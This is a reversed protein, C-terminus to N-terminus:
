EVLTRVVKAYVYNRSLTQQWNKRVDRDELCDAMYNECAKAADEVGDAYTRSPRRNWAARTLGRLGCTKCYVLTEPTDDALIDTSECCPCERLKVREIKEADM